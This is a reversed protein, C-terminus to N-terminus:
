KCPRNIDGCCSFYRVYVSINVKIAYYSYLLLLLPACSISIMNHERVRKCMYVRRVCALAFVYVCVCVHQVFMQSEVEDIVGSPSSPCSARVFGLEPPRPFSDLHDGRVESSNRSDGNLPLLVLCSWMYVVSDM